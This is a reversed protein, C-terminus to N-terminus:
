SFIWSFVFKYVWLTAGAAIVAGVTWKAIEANQSREHALDEPTDKGIEENARGTEEVDKETASVRARMPESWGNSTSARRLRVLVSDLAGDDNYNGVKRFFGGKENKNKRHFARTDDVIREVMDLLLAAGAETSPTDLTRLVEYRDFESEPKLFASKAIKLAAVEEDV